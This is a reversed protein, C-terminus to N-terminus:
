YHLIRNTGVLETGGTLTFGSRASVVYISKCPFPLAARLRIKNSGATATGNIWVRIWLPCRVEVIRMNTNDLLMIDGELGNNATGMEGSFSAQVSFAVGAQLPNARGRFVAVETLRHGHGDQPVLRFTVLHTNTGGPINDTPSLLEVLM